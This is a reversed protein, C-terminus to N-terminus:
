PIGRCPGKVLNCPRLFDGAVDNVNRSSAPEGDAYEAYEAATKRPRRGRPRRGLAAGRRPYRNADAARWASPDRAAEEVGSFFLAIERQRRTVLGSWPKGDALVWRNFQGEVRDLERANIASLLTSHRFNASGVNFVFDVLAAFQGDTMPMTVATMVSYQAGGMDATLILQGQHPTLGARYQAPESGDCRAKKILHGYGITCFGAADDYLHPVWGECQKTVEIGAPFVSRLTVGPPVLEQGPQM